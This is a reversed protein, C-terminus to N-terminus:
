KPTAVKWFDDFATYIAAIDGFNEFNDKVDIVRCDQTGGVKIGRLGRGLMQSYLVVSSTPRAIIITRINPADFGTSLVGFNYLADLRGKRFETIIRRRMSRPMQCDVYGSRLGAFASRLALEKAHDVTCTFVLTPNSAQQEQKVLSIIFDNRAKNEALRKLLTSPVDDYVSAYDLEQQTLKINTASERAVRQIRALIGLKQLRNVANTGLLSSRVLNQNFLRALALNDQSPDATRGPTATLGAIHLTSSLALWEIVGKITPALAKHAEDIVAIRAVSRLKQLFSSDSKLASAAKQFTSVVFAGDAEYAPPNFPGYFRVIKFEPLDKVRWVLRFAEIAQECLEEAHALWLISPPVSDSDLATYFDTIAEILTRTKGAGTPLQVLFRGAGPESLRPTVQKVIDAQYDFLAPPPKFGDVLEVAQLSRQYSPLFDAPIAFRDALIAAVKSSPKWPLRALALATDYPKEYPRIGAEKAVVAINHAPLSEVLVARVAQDSLIDFGKLCYLLSYFGARDLASAEKRVPMPVIGRLRDRLLDLPIHDLFRYV